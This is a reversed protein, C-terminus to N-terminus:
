RVAPLGRFELWALVAVAVAQVLISIIGVATASAVVAAVALSALVWAVNGAIVLWVLAPRRTAAATAMLAASPFLAVGAVRLLNVPLGSWGALPAAGAVLLVGMVLCTVADFALVARLGGSSPRVSGPSAPSHLPDRITTTM